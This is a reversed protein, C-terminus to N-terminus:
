SGFSMKKGYFDCVIVDVKNAWWLSSHVTLRNLLTQLSTKWGNQRERVRLIYPCLTSMVVCVPKHTDTLFFMLSYTFLNNPSSLRWLILNYTGSCFSLNVWMPHHVHFTFFYHVSTTTNRVYLMSHTFSLTKEDCSKWM